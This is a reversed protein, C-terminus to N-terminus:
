QRMAASRGIIDSAADTAAVHTPKPPATHNEELTAHLRVLLRQDEIAWEMLLQALREVPLRSLENLTVRLMRSAGNWGPQDASNDQEGPIRNNLPLNRSRNDVLRRCIVAVHCPETPIWVNM